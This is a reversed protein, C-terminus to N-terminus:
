RPIRLVMWKVAVYFLWTVGVVLIILPIYVFEVVFGLVMATSTTFAFLQRLSVQPPKTTWV